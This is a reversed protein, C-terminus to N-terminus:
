GLYKLLKRATYRKLRIPAQLNLLMHSELFMWCLEFCYVKSEDQKAFVWLKLAKHDYKTNNYNELFRRAKEEPVALPIKRSARKQYISAKEWGVTNRSGSADFVQDGIQIASHTYISRTALAIAISPWSRFDVAYLNLYVSESM